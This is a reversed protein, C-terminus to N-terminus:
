RSFVSGWASFQFGETFSLHLEKSQICTIEVSETRIKNLAISICGCLLEQTDVTAELTTREKLLRSKFLGWHIFSTLDRSM